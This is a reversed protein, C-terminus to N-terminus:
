RWVTSVELSPTPLPPLSVSDPAALVALGGEPVPVLGAARAWAAVAQPGNIRNAALRARAVGASLETKQEMLDVQHNLLGQNTIGMVALLALLVLYAPLALRFPAPLTRTM